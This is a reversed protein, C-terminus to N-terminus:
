KVVNTPKEVIKANEELVIPANSGHVLAAKVANTRKEVIKTTEELM